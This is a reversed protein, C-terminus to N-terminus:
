CVRGHVVVVLKTSKGRRFKRLGPNPVSVFIEIYCLTPYTSPLSWALFWNQYLIGAQSPRVAPCVSVHRCCISRLCVTARYFRASLLIIFYCTGISLSYGRIWM